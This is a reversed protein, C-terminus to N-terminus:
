LVLHPLHIFIFKIGGQYNTLTNQIRLVNSLSKRLMQMWKNRELVLRELTFQELVEHDGGSVITEVSQLHKLVKTLEIMVENSDSSVQVNKDNENIQEEIAINVEESTHSDFSPMDFKVMRSPSNNNTTAIIDERQNMHILELNPLEVNSVKKLIGKGGGGMGQTNTNVEKDPTVPTSTTNVETDSDSQSHRLNSIGILVLLKPSVDIFNLVQIPM